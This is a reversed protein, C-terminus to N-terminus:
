VVFLCSIYSTVLGSQNIYRAFCVFWAQGLNREQGALVFVLKLAVFSFQMCKQKQLGSM